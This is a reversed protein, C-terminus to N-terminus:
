PVVGVRELNVGERVLGLDLVGDLREEVDLHGVNPGLVAAALCAPMSELDAAHPVPFFRDDRKMLFVPDVEISGRAFYGDALSSNTGPRGRRSPFQQCGVAIPSELILVIPM